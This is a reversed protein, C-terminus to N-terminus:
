LHREVEQSKVGQECASECVSECVSECISECPFGELEGHKLCPQFIPEFNGKTTAFLKPKNYKCEKGM